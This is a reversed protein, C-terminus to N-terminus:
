HEGWAIPISELDRHRLKLTAQTPTKAASRSPRPMKDHQKLMRKGTSNMSSTPELPFSGSSTSFFQSLEGGFHRLGTAPPRTSVTATSATSLRNTLHPPQFANSIIM